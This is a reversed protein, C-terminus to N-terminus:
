KADGNEQTPTEAGTKPAQVVSGEPQSVVADTDCCSESTSTSCKTPASGSLPCSFRSSCGSGGGHYEVYHVYAWAGGGVVALATLGATLLTKLGM